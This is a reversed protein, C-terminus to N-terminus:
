KDFMRSIYISAHEIDVNELRFDGTMKIASIASIWPSPQNFMIRFWVISISGLISWPSESSYKFGTFQLAFCYPELFKNFHLLAPLQNLFKDIRTKYRSSM